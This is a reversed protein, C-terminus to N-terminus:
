RIRADSGYLGCNEYINVCTLYWDDTSELFFCDGNTLFDEELYDIKSILCKLGFMLYLRLKHYGRGFNNIVNYMPFLGVDLWNELYDCMINEDYHDVFLTDKLEMFSLLDRNAGLIVLQFRPDRDIKIIDEAIKLLNYTTSPSGIWGVRLVSNQIFNEKKDKLKYDPMAGIIVEGLIGYRSRIFDLLYGNDCIVYDVEKFIMDAFDLGWLNESWVADDLDYVLVINLKKIFKLLYLNSTKVIVIETIKYNFILRFLLIVFAILRIFLVSSGLGPHKFLKYGRAVYIDSRVISSPNGNVTVVVKM